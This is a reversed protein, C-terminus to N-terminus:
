KRCFVMEDEDRITGSMFDPSLIIIKYYGRCSYIITVRLNCYHNKSVSLKHVIERKAKSNNKPHLPTRVKHFTNPDSFGDWGVNASCNPLSLIVIVQGFSVTLSSM